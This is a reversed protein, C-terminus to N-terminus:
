EGNRIQNIIDRASKAAPPFLKWDDDTCEHFSLVTEAHEGGEKGRMLAIYKVYRPDNVLIGGNHTVSFAFRFGVDYLNLVDNFDFADTELVSTVNANHNTILHYFKLTGYCLIIIIIAFTALGGTVTHVKKEGNLNFAPLPRGFQDIKELLSSLRLGKLSILQKQSRKSKNLNGNNNM